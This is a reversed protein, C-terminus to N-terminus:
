VPPLVVTCASDSYAGGTASVCQAPTQSPKDFKGKTHLTGYPVFAAGMYADVGVSIYPVNVALDLLPAQKLFDYGIGIEGQLDERGNLYNLKLQGPKVGGALNLYFALDGGTTDGDSEVKARYVGIVLAPTVGGDMKWNLGVYGRTETESASGTAPVLNYTPPPPVVGAIAASGTLTSLLLVALTSKKM